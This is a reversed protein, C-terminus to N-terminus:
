LKNFRLANSGTTLVRGVGVPMGLGTYGPELRLLRGQRCANYGSRNLVPFRPALIALITVIAM